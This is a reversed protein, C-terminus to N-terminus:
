KSSSCGEKSAYGLDIRGYAEEWTFFSIKPQVCSRWVMHWLFDEFICPQLVKYMSKVIFVGTNTLKWRVKDLGVCCGRQRMWKGTM